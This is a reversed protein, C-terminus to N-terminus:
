HVRVKDKEEKFMAVKDPLKPKGGAAPKKMVGGKKAGLVGLIKAASEAVTMGKAPAEVEAGTAEHSSDEGEEEEEEEEAAAACSDLKMKKPEAAPPVVPPLALASESPKRKHRPLFTIAPEGQPAGATLAQASFAATLAQTLVQLCPQLEAAAVMSSSASSGASFGGSGRLLKSSKRCPIGRVLTALEVADLRCPVPQEDGFLAKWQAPYAKAYLAPSPLEKVPLRTCTVSNMQERVHDYADKKQQAGHQVAAEFGEKAIMWMATMMTKTRESAVSCGLGAVKTIIRALKVEAPVM